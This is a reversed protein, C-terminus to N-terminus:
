KLLTMKKTITTTGSRLSYIYVGSPLGAGQLTASYTGPEKIENVLTAVENGIVDFVKLTVFNKDPVTFRIATSPNFPNPYNQEMTFQAPVGAFITETLNYYAFTGDFDVQKLRYNYSGPEVNNDNYIYAASESSTGRGATFGIKTWTGNTSNKREIEFGSNNLETAVRWSLTVNNGSAFATFGTLEVPVIAPLAVKIIAAGGAGVMLTDGPLIKCGIVQSSSINLLGLNFQTWTAGGNTTHFVGGGFGTVVFDNVSRFDINYLMTGTYPFHTNTWTLGADTTKFIYGSNSAGTGGILYGISANYMRIKNAPSVPFGPSITTWTAGGDTTRNINLGGVALATLSDVMCIGNQAVTSGISAMASWTTGGDTTKWLQGANGAAMGYQANYFSVDNFAQNTTTGTYLAWNYGGDTTKWIRGSNGVAYGNQDDLMKLARLDAASVSLTVPTFTAGYNESVMVQTPSNLGTAIIKGSGNGWLGQVFGAAFLKSPSSWTAGNNTSKIFYGNDGVIYISNGTVDIARMIQNSMGAPLYNIRNFSAGGDQTTFLLSDDDAFYLTNGQVAIDYFVSTTPANLAMAAWTTGGDTSKYVGGSTSAYATLSDTFVIDNITSTGASATAWSTGGDTSYRINASSNNFGGAFLKGSPSVALTYYTTLPLSSMVSWTAGGDTTKSVKFYSTGAVYGTLSDIFLIDRVTGQNFFGPAMPTFSNGGNTTKTVGFAGGAYFTNANVYYAAYIDLTTNAPLTSPYGANPNHSFTQGGDTTKVMNGGSGFAIVNNEDWAKVVGLSVGVPGPHVWKPSLM